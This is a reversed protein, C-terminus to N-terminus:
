AWVKNRAPPPTAPNLLLVRLEDVPVLRRPLGSALAAPNLALPRPPCALLRFAADASDLPSLAAGPDASAARRGPPRSATAPM